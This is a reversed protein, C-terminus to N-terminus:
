GGAPSAPSGQWSQTRLSRWTQSPGSAEPEMRPQAESVQILVLGLVQQLIANHVVSCLSVLADVAIHKRQLM